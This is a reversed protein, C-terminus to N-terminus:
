LLDRLCVAVYLVALSSFLLYFSSIKSFINQLKTRNQTKIVVFSHYFTAIIMLFVLIIKIWLFKSLINVHLFAVFLGNLYVLMSGSLILLILVFINLWGYYTTFQYFFKSKESKSYMIFGVLTIMGGVWVCALLIHLYLLVINM